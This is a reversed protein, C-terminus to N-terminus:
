NLPYLKPISEIMSLLLRQQHAKLFEDKSVKRDFNTDLVEHAERALVEAAENGTRADGLM